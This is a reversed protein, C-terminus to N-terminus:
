INIFIKKWSNSTRRSREGEYYVIYFKLNNLKKKYHTKYEHQLM